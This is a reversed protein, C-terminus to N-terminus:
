SSHVKAKLVIEARTGRSKLVGPEAVIVLSGADVPEDAEHLAPDFALQEGIDASFELSRSRALARILAGLRTFHPRAQRLSRAEEPALMELTDAINEIQGALRDSKLQAVFLGALREELEADSLAGLLGPDRKPAASVGESLWRAIDGDLRPDGSATRRYAFQMRDPGLADVLVTRLAQDKVGQLAFLHLAGFGEDAIEAILKEIEQSPSRPKWWAIVRKAVGYLGSTTVLERFRFRLLDHIAKLLSAATQDMREANAPGTSSFGTRMIKLLGDAFKTQGGIAMPGTAVIEAIGTVLQEAKRNLFGASLDSSSTYASFEEAIRSAIEAAEGGYDRLLVFLPEAVRTANPDSTVLLRSAAELRWPREIMALAKAFYEREKGADLGRPEIPQDDVARALVPLVVRRGPASTEGLHGLLSFVKARDPQEGQELVTAVVNMAHAIEPSAEFDLNVRRQDIAKRLLELADQQDPTM